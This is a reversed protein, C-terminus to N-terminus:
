YESDFLHIWSYWDRQVCASGPKATNAASRWTPDHNPPPLVLDRQGSLNIDHRCRLVRNLADVEEVAGVAV